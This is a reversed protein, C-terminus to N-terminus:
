RGLMPATTGLMLVTTGLVLVTILCLAVTILFLLITFMTVIGTFIIDLADHLSYVRFPKYYYRVAKDAGIDGKFPQRRDYDDLITDSDNLDRFYVRLEIYGSVSPYFKMTLANGDFWPEYGWRDVGGEIGHPEVIVPKFALLPMEKSDSERYEIHLLARRGSVLPMRHRFRNLISGLVRTGFFPEVSSKVEIEM